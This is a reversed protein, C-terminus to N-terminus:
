RKLWWLLMLGEEGGARYVSITITLHAFLYICSWTFRAHDWAMARQGRSCVALITPHGRHNQKGPFQPRGRDSWPEWCALCYDVLKYKQNEGTLQNHKVAILLYRIWLMITLYFLLIHSIWKPCCSTVARSVSECFPQSCGRDTDKHCRWPKQELYAKIPSSIFVHYTNWTVPALMWAYACSFLPKFPSLSLHQEPLHNKKWTTPLLLYINWVQFTFPTVTM